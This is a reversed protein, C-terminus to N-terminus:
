TPITEPKKTIGEYAMRGVGYLIVSSWVLVGSGLCGIYAVDAPTIGPIVLWALACMVPMLIVTLAILSYLRRESGSPGLISSIM